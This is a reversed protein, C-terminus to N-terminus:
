QDARPADLALKGDDVLLGIMTSTFSKSVSFSPLVSNATVGEAYKEYVLRGGHIVVVSDGGNPGVMQAGVAEVAAKDVGAPLAGTPWGHNAM